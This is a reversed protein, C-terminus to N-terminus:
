FNVFRLPEGTPRARTIIKLSKAAAGAGIEVGGQGGLGENVKDIFEQGVYGFSGCVEGAVIKSLDFFWAGPINNIDAAYIIELGALKRIISDLQNNVTAFDEPDVPDGVSTIRLNSLVQLVLDSSSRYPGSTAM